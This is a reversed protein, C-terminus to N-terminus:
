SNNKNSTIIYFVYYIMHIVLDYLYWEKIKMKWSRNKQLEALIVTHAIKKRLNYTGHRIAVNVKAFAARM